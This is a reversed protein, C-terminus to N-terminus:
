WSVFFDELLKACMVLILDGNNSDARHCVKSKSGSCIRNSEQADLFHDDHTTGDCDWAIYTTCRLTRSRSFGM